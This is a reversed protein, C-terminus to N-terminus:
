RCVSKFVVENDVEVAKEACAAPDFPDGLGQEYAACCPAPDGVGPCDDSTAVCCQLKEASLQSIDFASCDKLCAAKCELGPLPCNSDCYARLRDIPVDPGDCWEDETKDDPFNIDVLSPPDAKNDGCYSCPGRYWLCASTCATVIGTTYPKKPYTLSACEVPDAFGGDPVYKPDCEEGLDLEGNGCPDCTGEDLTCAATCSLYGKGSPCTKQGFDVTDCAEGPDLLGNGCAVPLKRCDSDCPAADEDAPDCEEGADEDIYGDGCSPVPDLDLICGVLVGGLGARLLLGALRGAVTGARRMM